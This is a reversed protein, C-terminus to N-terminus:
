PCTISSSFALAAALAITSATFSLGLAQVPDDKALGLSNLYPVMPAVFVGTAGAILGNCLGIVPSLWPEVGRAVAFPRGFLGFLGYGVLVAGLAVGATSASPGILVDIGM